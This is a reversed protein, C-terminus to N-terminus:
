VAYFVWIIDSGTGHMGPGTEDNYMPQLEFCLSWAGSDTVGNKDYVVRPKGDDINETGRFSIIYGDPKNALLSTIHEQPLYRLADLYDRLLYLEESAASKQPETLFIQGEEPFIRLQTSYCAGAPDVFVNIAADRELDFGGTINTLVNKDVYPGDEAGAAEMVYGTIEEARLDSLNAIPMSLSGANAADVRNLGLGLALAAALVVAVIVLDLSPKGFRLVNKIRTKIDSEGFALPSAGAFRRGAALSLLSLSYDTKVGTGMKKLVHEDCSMEMDAGMLAFALWVLPNFWHLCLIFYAALKVIHDGRRIHTREHMLVFDREQPLLSPLYIRPRLIGLVFPSRINEAEYINDTVHTASLLRKKLSFYSALGYVTLAAMGAVWVATGILLWIQLPNSGYQPTAAPLVSAAAENIFAIGSDIRPVGQVAIDTPITRANFPILSFVSEIPFWLVLRLGAVAWLAYSIRKPAKKLLLRALCLVAIVFGGTLSLNLVQIFVREM